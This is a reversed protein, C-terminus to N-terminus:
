KVVLVSMKAEHVLASSVSGLFLRKVGGLGRSGVVLLDFGGKEAFKLLQTPVHGELFRTGAEVKQRRALDAARDLAKRAEAILHERLDETYDFTGGGAMFAGANYVQAPVHVVSVFTLSAGSDRAISTATEAARLASESGDVAALIKRFSLNRPAAM